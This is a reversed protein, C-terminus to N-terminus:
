DNALEGVEVFTKVEGHDNKRDMKVLMSTAYWRSLAANIITRHGKSKHDLGIVAAVAVGIWDKAQINERYTGSKAKAQVARLHAVTVSEMADPWQWEVVVAVHDPQDFPNDGGNELSVSALRFWSSRDPPPALNAKGNDTRFYGRHKEVGARDAEEKTMPNLVRASRAAALLASAGRGDEVTIEPGHVKRVHHVLDWATDTADAIRAIAKCVTDIANNDNENVAHAKVLPDLVVVDIQNEVIAATLAEVVPEAIITGNRTTTAIVVETDRGSNLFLRGNLAVPDIGYHLCIAIVRRELEELPDELNIVWVRCPEHVQEGALSRGLALSIAEVLLLSTKGAAGPAVTASVFKRIM